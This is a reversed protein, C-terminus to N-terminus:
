LLLAVPLSTFPCAELARNQPVTTLQGDMNGSDERMGTCSMDLGPEGM